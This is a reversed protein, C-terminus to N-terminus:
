AEESQKKEKYANIVRVLGSILNNSVGVFGSVPSMASGMFKALLEERSPLAAYQKITETGVVVGDIIGGLLELKDNEKSFNFLVKLGSLADEYSFTAAVPGQMASSDIDEINNAEKAALRILTKKAVKIEADKERLKTRLESISAVDLGRYNAFVVSKSKGFREVLEQLVQEKKQKSVSM